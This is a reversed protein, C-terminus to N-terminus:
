SIGICHDQLSAYRVLENRDTLKLFHVTWAICSQVKLETLNLKSAIDADSVGQGVLRYIPSLVGLKEWFARM